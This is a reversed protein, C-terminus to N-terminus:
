CKRASEWNLFDSAMRRNVDVFSVSTPSTLTCMGHCHMPSSQFSTRAESVYIRGSVRVAKRTVVRRGGDHDMNTPDHFTIGSGDLADQEVTMPCQVSSRGHLRACYDHQMSPPRLSTLGMLLGNRSSLCRVIAERLM